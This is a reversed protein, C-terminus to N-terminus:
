EWSIGTPTKTTSNQPYFQVGIFFTDWADTIHTKEEDPNEITDPLKEASKDKEFGNRGIKIGCQEMALLLYVNNDQNFTPFLYNEDGKLANDIYQHKLNHRMPVGMYVDTVSWGRKILTNIVIEAFTEGGAADDCIATSDYYYIVEKKPHAHYYDCWDNILEKIKRPTKVFFSSLCRAERGVVQGTVMTNISSNYDNAIILPETSIVDGDNACTNKQSETTNYDLGELYHNNYSAYFHIKENLASYFGNEIKRLRENLVATRFILPPLDRKLQRIFDEGLIEINDFADYEAYFLAKSRWFDLEKRLRKIKEEDSPFKHKRSEEYKIKNFLYQILEILEKDMEKEKDLLWQGMKNTPMDTTYLTGHHWPCEGFYQKNGRNAPAVENTIKKYDLFKAEFGFVYDLSMSNASMPRDFSILNQISGNFWSITYDYNFPCIYPSKFNLHKPPKHGVVYHINRRYGLRELAHFIAPLTNRLLKGYTPSLLAGASRPMAFVNRILRTADIGESKGFGRAAIIVEDKAAITMAEIQKENFYKYTKQQDM